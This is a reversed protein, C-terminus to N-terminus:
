RNGEAFNLSEVTKKVPYVYEMLFNYLPGVFTNSPMTLVREMSDSLWEYAQRLTFHNPLNRATIEGQVVFAKVLSQIHAIWAGSPGLYHRALAYLLGGQITEQLRMYDEAALTDQNAHIKMKAENIEVVAECLKFLLEQDGVRALIFYYQSSNYDGALVHLQRKVDTQTDVDDHISLGQQLLLVAELIDRAETPQVHAAELVAYAVDFHFRSVSQRIDCTQLYPHHMYQQVRRNVEQFLLSSTPNSM